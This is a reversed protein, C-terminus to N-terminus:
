CLRMQCLRMQCLPWHIAVKRRVPLYGIVGQM